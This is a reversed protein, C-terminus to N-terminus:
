SAALPIFHMTSTIKFTTKPASRMFAQSSHRAPYMTCGDFFPVPVAALPSLFACRCTGCGSRQVCASGRHQDGQAQCALSGAVRAAFIPQVNTWNRVVVAFILLGSQAIAVKTSRLWCRRDSRHRHDIGLPLMPVAAKVLGPMVKAFYLWTCAPRPYGKLISIFMSM